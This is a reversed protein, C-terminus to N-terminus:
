DANRVQQSICILPPTAGNIWRGEILVLKPHLPIGTENRTLQGAVMDVAAMGVLKANVDIGSCLDSSGIRQITAFGIKGMKGPEYNQLLQRGIGIVADPRHKEFWRLFAKGEWQAPLFPPVRHSVAIKYEYSLFASLYYHHNRGDSKAPLALGIRRYGLRKLHRLILTTNQFHNIAARHLNPKWVSHGLTAAAFQSWDLTLHGHAPLTPGVIVGRINRTRLIQTLRKGTMRPEKAWIEELRCGIQNARASAGEFYERSVFEHYEYFEFEKRWGNRDPSLTLLAITETQRMRKRAQVRTMLESLAPSLRYGLEEAIKQIHRRTKPPIRPHNRLALSVTTRSVSARM